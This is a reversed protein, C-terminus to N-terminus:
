IKAVSEQEFFKTKLIIKEPIEVNNIIKDLLLQASIMGLHEIPIEISTLAPQLMQSFEYSMYGAISLDTPITLNLLRSNKYLSFSKLDDTSFIATPLNKQALLKYTARDADEMSFGGNVMWAENIPLGHKVLCDKYGNFRDISVHFDLPSHVCGIKRHGQEILYETLQFSDNYNDTDVSHIYELKTDVSGIVIIPINLSNLRALLEENNPSALLIIGKVKNARIKYMLKEIDEHQSVHLILDFHVQEAIEGISAIVNSFYPNEKTTKLSRTYMISIADFSANSLGQALKNPTFNLTQMSELVRKKTKESINPSNNIVRSVTSKSVNAHKAIDYITYNM